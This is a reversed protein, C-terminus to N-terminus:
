DAGILSLVGFSGDKGAGRQDGLHMPRVVAVVESPDVEIEVSESDLAGAIKALLAANLRVVFKPARTPIVAVADPFVGSVTAWEQVSGATTVKASGNLAVRADPVSRGLKKATARAAAIADAPYISRGPHDEPEETAAIMTLIRGDTAALYGQDGRKVFSVGPVAYRSEEKPVVAAPNKYKDFRM